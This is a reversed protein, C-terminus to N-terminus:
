KEVVNLLHCNERLKEFKKNVSQWDVEKDLVSFDADFVFRDKLDFMEFLSSMRVNMNALAGSVLIIGFTKQFIMSFVCSHFSNTVVYEAHELLYLWEPITAYTKKYNDYQANASIYVVDLNKSKAWAYMNEVSFESGNGLFYFFIYPKTPKEFQEDKYLARYMDPELLITPDPMWEANNIGCQKCFEISSKERVSIYDFKKLLPSIKEIFDNNLEEVAFSPAYSYRKVGSNGFDLFYAKIQSESAGIGLPNWVQDSGVIYVDAEPPNEKLEDYYHYLKESQKIHKSRFDSFKRKENKRKEEAVVASQKRSQILNRIYGFLKIPNFVNLARKWIPKSIPLLLPQYDNSMDYRILYADHGADRLYKQLAFCQLQQGYNDNSWWFTMIGIKM